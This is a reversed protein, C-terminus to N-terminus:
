EPTERREADRTPQAGAPEGDGPPSAELRYLTLEHLFNHVYRDRRFTVIPRLSDRGRLLAPFEPLDSLVLIAGTPSLVAAEEISGVVRGSWRPAGWDIFRASNWCVITSGEPIEGKALYALLQCRTPPTGRNALVLPIATGGWAFLLAALLVPSRSAGAGLLPLLLLVLPLVHRPNELNQGVFVWLAYPLSLTALYAVAPVKPHRRIGIVLSLPVLLTAALRYLPADPWWLGLGNPGLDWLFALLRGWGPATTASGGWETFHGALHDGGAAWLARPGTLLLLPLMWAGVGHIGGHTAAKLLGRRGGAAAVATWLVAGAVLPAASLRVGLLLGGSLGALYGARTSRRPDTRAAATAESVQDAMLAVFLLAFADSFLKEAELFLFPSAIALLGAALAARAGFLRSTLRHLPWIALSSGVCGALILASTPDQTLPLLLRGALVYVPYGPFHPQGAPVDFERLALLFNVSDWGEPWRGL